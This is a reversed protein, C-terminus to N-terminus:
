PIPNQDTAQNLSTNGNFETQPIRFIFNMSQPGTGGRMALLKQTHNTGPYNRDFGIKLRLIDPLRFGEGWLEIRRQLIIEDMLTTIPDTSVAAVSTSNTLGNIYAAYNTKATATKLRSDSLTTLLTRAETYNGLRAQAEAKILLMEEARMYMVDGYLDKIAKFKTNSIYSTNAGTGGVAGKWWGKRADDANIKDYLWKSACKPGRAGWATSNTPAYLFSLNGVSTQDTLCEMSWLSNSLKYDTIGNPVKDVSLLSVGSRSLASDAANIADQNHGQVLAIRAKLGNAVYYDIHSCHTQTRKGAARFLDISKTIDANILAYVQEVTGRPKGVAGAVSPETYLPVGPLGEGGQYTQQYAQILHFYAWARIAYAQAIVEKALTQDGAIKGENTIAYNANSIITYYINWMVYNRGGTTLNNNIIYTYDYDFAFFDVVPMVMDDAMVDWTVMTSTQGFTQLPNAGSTFQARWSMSYIGDIAVQASQADKFITSGSTRDTPETDLEKECSVSLFAGALLLALYKFYHKM